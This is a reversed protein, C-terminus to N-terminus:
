SAAEAPRALLRHKQWAERANHLAIRLGLWGDLAGGHVVYGRVFRAAGHLAASGIWSRRGRAREQEAWLRAYRASRRRLDNWDRFSRHELVGELREIRGPVRVSEHVRRDEMTWADARFLRLNWDPFWDGHRVWREEFRVMRNIEFGGVAAPVGAAFTRTLADHLADTLLEDADLWLIWAQTALAFSRRRTAAFGEWAATEVRAGAARCAGITGDDSGTDLVVVEAFRAAGGPSLSALTAPVRDVENRVIMCVSVPLAEAM